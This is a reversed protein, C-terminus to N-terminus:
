LINGFKILMLLVIPKNLLLASLYNFAYVCMADCGSASSYMCWAMLDLM